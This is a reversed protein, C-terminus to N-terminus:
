HPRDHYIKGELSMLRAKLANIELALANVELALNLNERKLTEIEILKESIAMVAPTWDKQKKFAMLRIEYTTM